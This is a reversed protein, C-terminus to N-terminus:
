GLLEKIELIVSKIANIGNEIKLKSAVKRPWDHQGNRLEFLGSEIDLFLNEIKQKLNSIILKTEIPSKHFYPSLEELTELALNKLNKTGLSALQYQDDWLIGDKGTYLLLNEANKLITNLKEESNIHISSEKIPSVYNKGQIGEKLFGTTLLAFAFAAASYCAFETWAADRKFGVIDSIGKIALIPYEKNKTRAASYIGALEMEVTRVNRATTRWYELLKTSKILRNSSAFETITFKPNQLASDSKFRDMLHKKLKDKWETQGYFNKDDLDIEPYPPEIKEFWNGLNAKIGPLISLFNQIEPHMPGGQNNYESAKNENVAEISFDHLRSALVVDGLSFDEHPVGGGIGILLLWDPDFDQIFAQTANQGGLTGQEICRTIAIWYETKDSATLKCIVYRFQGRVIGIPQFYKLVATFEDERITIIGFDIKKYFDKINYSKM